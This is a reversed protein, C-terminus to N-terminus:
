TWAFDAVVDSIRGRKRDIRLFSLTLTDSRSSDRSELSCCEGPPIESVFPTEGQKFAASTSWKEMVVTARRCQRLGGLLQEQVLYRM